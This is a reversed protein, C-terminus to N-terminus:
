LAQRRHRQLHPHVGRRLDRRGLDQRGPDHDGPAEDQRAARDAPRDAGAVLEAPRDLHREARPRGQPHLVRHGHRPAADLLVQRRGAQGPRAPGPLLPGGLRALRRAQRQHRAPLRRHRLRAGLGGSVLHHGAPQRGPLPDDREPPVARGRRRRRDPQGQREHRGEALSAECIPLIKALVDQRPKQHELLTLEVPEAATSPAADVAAASPPPTSGGNSGSGHHGGPSCAQVILALGFAATIARSRRM